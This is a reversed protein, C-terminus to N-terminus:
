GSWLWPLRRELFKVLAVLAGKERSIQLIRGPDDVVEVNRFSPKLKLEKLKRTAERKAKRERETLAEESMLRGSEGIWPGIKKRYKEIFKRINQGEIEPPPGLILRNKPKKLRGLEIALHMENDVKWVDSAYFKFPSRRFTKRLKREVRKAQGFYTDPPVDECLFLRVLLISRTELKRRIEGENVKPPTPFFFKWHPVELFCKAAIKTLSFKKLTLAALLNRERDTPDIAVLRSNFHDFAEERTWSETPDLFVENHTQFYSLVSYFSGQEEIVIECAMGSFGGVEIEAGYTGIGKLFRKLLRVEDKEVENLHEIVWATHKPTRDVASLTEGVQFSPVIDIGVGEIKTRLYPHEAYRRTFTYPLETEITKLVEKMKRRSKREEFIIFLDLDTEGSLWTDKAYSGHMEIHIFPLNKLSDAVEKTIQGSLRKIEEREQDAPKIEEIVDRLLDRLEKSQCEKISRLETSSM